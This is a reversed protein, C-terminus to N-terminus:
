GTEEIAFRSADAWVPEVDRRVLVIPEQALAHLTLKSRRALSHKTPVAAVLKERVLVRESLDPQSM